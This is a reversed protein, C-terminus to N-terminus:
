GVVAGSLSAACAVCFRIFAFEYQRSPFVLLVMKRAAPFVAFFIMTEL